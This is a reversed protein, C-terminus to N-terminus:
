RLNRLAEIRKEIPPHTSFPNSKKKSRLEAYPTVIYMGETANSSNLLPINSGSIKELAGALGEPNRTFQAATADALFERNRSLSMKLLQGAIPALIVFLLGVILIILAGGGGRSSRRSGVGSNLTIRSVTRAAILAAGIMIGAVTQLLMDYNRIHALEHAVVGELQYYDLTKLLGTTVCIVGKEPNRGTAFANLAPDEMVYLRPKPTGAAICLGELINNLQKDQEPTAPRAKHMALVIKDSNWYTAFSAIFSVIVAFIGAAYGMELLYYSIFFIIAAFFLFILGVILTTKTKNKSIAQFM